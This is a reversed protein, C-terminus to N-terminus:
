IALPLSDVSQFFKVRSALWGYRSVWGPERGVVLKGPLSYCQLSPKTEEGSLSGVWMGPLWPLM